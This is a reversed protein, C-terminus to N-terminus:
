ESKKNKKMRWFVYFSLALSITTFINGVQKETIAFYLSVVSKDFIFFNNQFVFKIKFFIIM